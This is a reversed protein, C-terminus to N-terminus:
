PHSKRQPQFHSHIGSRVTALMEHQQRLMQHAAAITTPEFQVSDGPRLQGALPLDAAIVQGLIAYGGITQADALLLIPNGDPPLQITGPLVARSVGDAATKPLRGRLRLGMRDSSATVSFPATTLPR